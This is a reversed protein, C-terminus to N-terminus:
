SDTDFLMFLSRVKLYFRAKQNLCMESGGKGEVIAIFWEKGDAIALRRRERCDWRRKRKAEDMRTALTLAKKEGWEAAAAAIWMGDCREMVFLVTMV